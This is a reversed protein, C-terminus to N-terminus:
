KLCEIVVNPVASTSGASGMVMAVLCTIRNIQVEVIKYESSSLRGSSVLTENAAPKRNDSKDVTDAAFTSLGSILILITLILNNKM